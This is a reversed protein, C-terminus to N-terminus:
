KEQSNISLSILMSFTNLKQVFPMDTIPYPNKTNLRAGRFKTQNLTLTKSDWHCVGSGLMQLIGGGGEGGVEQSLAGM